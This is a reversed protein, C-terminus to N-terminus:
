GGIKGGTTAFGGEGEPRSSGEKEGTSSESLQSKGRKKVVGLTSERRVV